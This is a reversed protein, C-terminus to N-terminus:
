STYLEAKYRAQHKRMWEITESLGQELTHVPRWGTLRLIKANDCRLREVESAPPRVRQQDQAVCVDVGILRAIVQVLDGVSIESNTGVNTIEGRSSDSRFIELFARATDKVFTLDRTPSVSGLRIERTGSLIQVVITPVIARASQRPGYTNFPRVIKVPVGFSRQYSLALQDAAIKTASYPSQGVMPHREDVPVYQASGYTESTSTVIVEGLSHQRAAELVNYTGEVNTRVYSLPSEYSYPIGILAALHFVAQCDKMARYMAEFDRVDGSVV